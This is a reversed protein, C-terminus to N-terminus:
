HRSLPVGSTNKQTLEQLPSNQSGPIPRLNTVVEIALPNETFSAKILCKMNQAVKMLMEPKALGRRMTADLVYEIGRPHFNKFTRVHAGLDPNRGM